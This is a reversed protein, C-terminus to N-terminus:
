ACILPRVLTSLKADPEKENWVNMRLGLDYSELLYNISEPNGEVLEKSLM